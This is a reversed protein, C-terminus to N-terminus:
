LQLFSPTNNGRQISKLAFVNGLNKGIFYHIRPTEGLTKLIGAVQMEISRSQLVGKQIAEKVKEQGMESISSRYGLLTRIKHPSEIVERVAEHHEQYFLGVQITVFSFIWALLIGRLYQNLTPNKKKSYRVELYSISRNVLDLLTKTSEPSYFLRLYEEGLSWSPILEYRLHGNVKSVNYIKDTVWVSDHLHDLALNYFGLLAKIKYKPFPSKINRVKQFM